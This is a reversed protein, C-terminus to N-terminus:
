AKPKSSTSLYDAINLTLQEYCYYPDHFIEVGVWVEKQVWNLDGWALVKGRGHEEIALAVPQSGPPKLPSPDLFLPVLNAMLTELDGGLGVMEARDITFATKSGRGIAKAEGAVGVSCGWGVMLRDVGEWLPHAADNDEPLVLIMGTRLNEWGGAINEVLASMQNLVRPPVIPAMSQYFHPDTTLNTDLILDFNFKMGLGLGEMLENLVEPYHYLASFDMFYLQVDPFLPRRFLLYEMAGTILKMFPREWALDCCIVPDGVLWLGGGEELFGEIAQVEDFSFYAPKGECDVDPQAVMLIDYGSLKERTIPPQTLADMSYGNERMFEAWTDLSLIRPNESTLLNPCTKGDLSVREAHTLDVLIKARPPQANTLSLTWTSLILV